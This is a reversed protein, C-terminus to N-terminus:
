IQMVKWKKRERCINELKNIMKKFCLLYLQKKYYIELLELDLTPASGIGAIEWKYQRSKKHVIKDKVRDMM